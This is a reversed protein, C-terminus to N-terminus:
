GIFVIIFFSLLGLDWFLNIEIWVQLYHRQMFLWKEATWHRVNALRPVLVQLLEMLNTVLLQLLLATLYELKWRRFNAILHFILPSARLVELFNPLLDTRGQEVKSARHDRVLPRLIVDKIVVWNRELLLMALATPRASAEAMLVRLSFHFEISHSLDDIHDLVINGNIALDCYRFDITGLTLEYRDLRILQWDFQCSDLFSLLSWGGRIM